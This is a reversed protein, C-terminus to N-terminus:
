PICLCSGNSAADAPLELSVGVPVLVLEMLQLLELSVCVPVLVLAMLQYNLLYM